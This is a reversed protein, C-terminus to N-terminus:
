KRNMRMYILIDLLGDPSIKDLFNFVKVRVKNNKVSVLRSRVWGTSLRAKESVPRCSQNLLIIGVKSGNMIRDPMITRRFRVSDKAFSRLGISVGSRCMLAFPM